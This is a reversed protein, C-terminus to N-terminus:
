SFLLLRQEICFALPVHLDELLTRVISLIHRNKRESVGNTTTEQAHVKFYLEMCHFSIRLSKIMTNELQILDWFKTIPLSNLLLWQELYNIILIVESKKCLFCIWTYKSYDDFFMVFYRYGLRSIILSPGWLDRCILEFPTNSIPFSLIACKSLSCTICTLWYYPFWICNEKTFCIM